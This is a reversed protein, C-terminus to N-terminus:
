CHVKFTITAGNIHPLKKMFLGMARMSVNRYLSVKPGPLDCLPSLYLRYIYIWYVPWIAYNALFIGILCILRTQSTLGNAFFNVFFMAEATAVLTLSPFSIIQEWSLM